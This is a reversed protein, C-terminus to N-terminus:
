PSVEGINEGFSKKKKMELLNQGGEVGEDSTSNRLM